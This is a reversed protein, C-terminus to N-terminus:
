TSGKLASTASKTVAEGFGKAQENFAKWQSQMFESQMRLFDQFDKARTLKQAYESAAAIHQDTYSKMKKSLDADNLWTPSAKISKEFFDFYNDMAKRTQEFGQVMMDSIGEFPSDSTAM